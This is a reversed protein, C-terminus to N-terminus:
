RPSGRRLRRLRAALAAVHAHWALDANAVASSQRCACHQSAISHGRHQSSISHASATLRLLSGICRASAALRHLSDICHASATLRHLTGICRASANLRHLSDSCHALATLWRVAGTAARFLLVLTGICPAAMDVPPSGVDRQRKGKQSDGADRLM